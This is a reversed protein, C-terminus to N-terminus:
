HLLHGIARAAIIESPDLHRLAQDEALFLGDIRPSFGYRMLWHRVEDDSLQRNEVRSRHARLQALDVDVVYTSAM